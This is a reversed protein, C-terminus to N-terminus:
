QLSTTHALLRQAVWGVGASLSSSSIFAAYNAALPYSSIALVQRGSVHVCVPRPSLALLSELYRGNNETFKLLNLDRMGRHM